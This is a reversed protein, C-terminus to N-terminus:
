KKKQQWESDPDDIVIGMPAMITRFREFLNAAQLTNMKSLTIRKGDASTTPCIVYMLEHLFDETLGQGNPNYEDLLYKLFYSVDIGLDNAQAITSQIMLGFIAKVQQNSKPSILKRPRIEVEYFGDPLLINYSELLMCFLNGKCKEICLKAKKQVM